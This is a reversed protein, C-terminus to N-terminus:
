KGRIEVWNHSNDMMELMQNMSDFKMILCGLTDNAGSFANIKDGKKKKIYNDVINNQKVSDRLVINDLIGGYNSHVAYYSWFGNQIGLTIHSLDDGMAAKIACEVLDVGTAYRIVQPIYNGGNRPAVEMLYVNFDKDIRLDFNYTGTKMGLLTLLRQIESHIKEQVRDPM